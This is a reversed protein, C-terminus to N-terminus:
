KSHWVKDVQSFLDADKPCSWAQNQKFGHGKHQNLIVNKFSGWFM